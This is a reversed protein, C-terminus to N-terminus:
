SEIHEVPTFADVPKPWKRAKNIEMKAQAAKAVQWLSFGSRRTADLLLLLCDSLEEKLDAKAADMGVERSERDSSVSAISLREVAEQAEKAEKELHKLPGMPGREDDTGFTAQSWASQDAILDRFTDAFDVCDAIHSM